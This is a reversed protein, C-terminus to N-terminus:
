VDIESVFASFSVSKHGLDENKEPDLTRSSSVQSGPQKCTPSPSAEWKQEVSLRRFKNHVGDGAPSFAAKRVPLRHVALPAALGSFEVNSTRPTSAVTRCRSAVSQCPPPMSKSGTTSLKDDSLEVPNAFHGAKPPVKQSTTTAEELDDFNILPPLIFEDEDEQESDNSAPLSDHTSDKTAPLSDCPATPTKKAEAARKEAGKKQKLQTNRRRLLKSQGPLWSVVEPYDALPPSYINIGSPNKPTRPNRAM